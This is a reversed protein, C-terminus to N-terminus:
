IVWGWKQMKKKLNDGWQLPGPGNNSCNLIKKVWPLNIGPKISILRSARSLIKKKLIFMHLYLKGEQPGERGVPIM